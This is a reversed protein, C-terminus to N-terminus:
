VADATLAAVAAHETPQISYDYKQTESLNAFHERATKMDMVQTIVCGYFDSWHTVTVTVDDPNMFKQMTGAKGLIQSPTVKDGTVLRGSRGQM